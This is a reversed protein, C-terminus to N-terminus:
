IGKVIQEYKNRFAADIELLEEVKRISSIATAHDRNFKAGISQLTMGASKRMLYMAIHRAEVIGRFRAPSKIADASIGTYGSVAQMIRDATSKKIGLLYASRAQSPLGLYHLLTM